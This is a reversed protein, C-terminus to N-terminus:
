CANSPKACRRWTSRISSFPRTGVVEPLSSTNAAIVPRGCALAEVVPMGFGEYVSPYVLGIAANYLAVLDEEPVYGLLRTSSSLGRRVIAEQVSSARFGGPGVIVLQIDPHRPRLDAFAELLRVLNKRPQVSGVALLFPRRLGHRALAPDAAAADM